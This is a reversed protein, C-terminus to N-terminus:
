QILEPMIALGTLKLLGEQGIEQQMLTLDMTQFLSTLVFSILCLFNCCQKRIEFVLSKQQLRRLKFVLATKIKIQFLATSYYLLIQTYLEVSTEVFDFSIQQRPFM